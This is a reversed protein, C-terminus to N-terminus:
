ADRLRERHLALWQASLILPGNAAEGTELLEMLRQFSIIHSLIDEAEDAVGGIGTAADPLDAIGIYSILHETLTGPSPYYAGIRHLEGLSLGAEEIAERRVAAEATEGPDIRGAVPELSWPSQDGRAYIGFRFQEILLVRDRGPDYPLVTVADASVFAARRVTESHGGAFLPFRIDQESVAFFETYPQRKEVTRVAEAAMGQRLDSPVPFREARISSWARVLMPPYLGKAEAATVQGHLSMLERAARQAADGHAEVWDALAWAGDAPPQKETPFYLRAPHQGGETEVSVERLGYHYDLEYFDLRAQDKATVGTLLVGDAVEGPAERIAPYTEGRVAMVRFGALRAPRIEPSRGLVVELLPRHRLTGYLFLSTSSTM